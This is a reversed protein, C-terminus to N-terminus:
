GSGGFHSVLARIMGEGTAEDAVLRVELGAQEAELATSRGICTIAVRELPIGLSALSRAASGSALLVADASRLAGSGAAGPEIEITRYVVVVEVTAGRSRLEEALAPDAIDAQPLLVHLSAVDGLGDAIADATFRDPVFSPEIALERLAEATAPGVAAFRAEDIRQLRDGVFRVGNASTFVIWDYDGRSVADLTAAAAPHVDILPVVTVEAGLRELESVLREATGRPRTVVVRKGALALEAM